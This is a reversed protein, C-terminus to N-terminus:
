LLYIVSAVSLKNAEFRGKIYAAEQNNCTKECPKGWIKHILGIHKIKICGISM